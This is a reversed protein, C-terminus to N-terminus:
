KKCRNSYLKPKIQTFRLEHDPRKINAIIFSAVNEGIKEFDLYICSISCDFIKSVEVEAFTLLDVDSGPVLTQKQLAQVVGKVVDFNECLIVDPKHDLSLLRNMMFWGMEQDTQNQQLYDCKLIMQNGRLSKKFEKIIHQWEGNECCQGCIAIQKYNREKVYDAALVGMGTLDRIMSVLQTPIAPKGLIICPIRNSIIIHEMADTLMSGMVIVGDIKKQQILKDVIESGTELTVNHISLSYSKQEFIKLIGTIIKVFKIYETLNCTSLPSLLAINNSRKRALNQARQNPYYHLEKMVQQVKSTTGQSISPSQNIVKSVTAISVGAAKAVERITIGM